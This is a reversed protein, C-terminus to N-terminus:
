NRDLKRSLFKDYDAGVVLSYEIDLFNDEMAKQSVQEAAVGIKEALKQAQVLNDKRAILLTHEQKFSEFNKADIVDIIFEPKGADALYQKFKGAIGAAGCGNLIQVRVAVPTIPKNDPTKNMVPASESQTFKIAFSVV